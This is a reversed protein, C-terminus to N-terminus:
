KNCWVIFWVTLAGIICSLVPSISWFIACIVLMVGIFFREVEWKGIEGDSDYKGNYTVYNTNDVVGVNEDHRKYTNIPNSVIVRKAGTSGLAQAEADLRTACDSVRVKKIYNSDTVITVEWDM